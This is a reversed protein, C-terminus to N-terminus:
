SNIRATSMGSAQMSRSNGPTQTSLQKFLAEASSPALADPIHVRGHTKFTQATLRRDLEPRLEIQM